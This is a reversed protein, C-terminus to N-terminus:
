LRLRQRSSKYKVRTKRKILRKHKHRPRLSLQKYKNRLCVKYRHRHKFKRCYQTMKHHYNPRLNPCKKFMRLKLRSIKNLKRRLWQRNSLKPWNSRNKLHSVELKSFLKCLPKSCKLMMKLTKSMKFRPILKSMTPKKPLLNPNKRRKSYSNLRWQSKQMPM